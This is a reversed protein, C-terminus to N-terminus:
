TGSFIQFIKRRRYLYDGVERESEEKAELDVM